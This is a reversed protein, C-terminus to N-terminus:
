ERYGRAAGDLAVVEGFALIAGGELGVGSNESIKV